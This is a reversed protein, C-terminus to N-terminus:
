QKSYQTFALVYIKTQTIIYLCQLCAWGGVQILCMSDATLLRLL